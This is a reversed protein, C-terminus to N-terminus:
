MTPSDKIAFFRFCLVILLRSLIALGTMFRLRIFRRSLPTYRRLFNLLLLLFINSAASRFPIDIFREHPNAPM